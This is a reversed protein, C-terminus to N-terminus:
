LAEIFLNFLETNAEALDIPKKREGNLPDAFAGAELLIVIIEPSKVLVALHLATDQSSEHKLDMHSSFNAGIVEKKVLIRVTEIQSNLVAAMLPTWGQIDRAFLLARSKLKDGHVYFGEVETSYEEMELDIENPDFLLLQCALTQGASAALHLASRGKADLLDFNAGHAILKRM